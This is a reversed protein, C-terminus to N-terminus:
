NFIQYDYFYKIKEKYKNSWIYTNEMKKWVISDKIIKIFYNKMFDYIEDNDDSIIYYDELIDSEIELLLHNIENIIEVKYMNKYVHLYYIYDNIYKYLITNWFNYIFYIMKNTINIIDKDELYNYNNIYTFNIIEKQYDRKIRKIAEKIDYEKRDYVTTVNRYILQQLLVSNNLLKLSNINFVNLINKDENIIIDINLESFDNESLINEKIYLYKIYEIDKFVNIKWNIKYSKINHMLYNKILIPMSVKEIMEKYLECILDINNTLFYIWWYNQSINYINFLQIMQDGKKNSKKYFFNNKINKNNENNNIYEIYKKFDLKFKEKKYWIINEIVKLM